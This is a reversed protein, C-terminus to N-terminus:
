EPMQHRDMAPFIQRDIARVPVGQNLMDQVRRAHAEEYSLGVQRQHSSVSINVFGGNGRAEFIQQVQM